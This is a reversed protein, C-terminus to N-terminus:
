PRWYNLVREAPDVKPDELTGNEMLCRIEAFGQVQAEAKAPSDLLERIAGSLAAPDPEIQLIEPVLPRDLIANPLSAYKVQYKFWRKAQGKDALYTTVMPVGALALELTVTGTVAVAAVAANMAAAKRDEGTIVDVKVPWDAVRQELTKVLRRPTPLVFGNVASHGSLASAVERMLPLHRRLEGDRSGPLLLIQGQSPRQERFQLATAAPHGIYSTKPGGAERMFAPEFPLVAMVERFHPKLEQAREPKWAWVAPAVCLVVPIDPAAKHVQKAVIASFVQADVLVAVDPRSKVIARAVQRARWLLKPLRPLVDAWGMVSLENMDFLSVQGESALADGGVGTVVVPVRQRLRRVLDAAIRDGSPEGALVFLRLAKPPAVADAM